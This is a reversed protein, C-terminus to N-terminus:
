DLGNRTLTFDGIEIRSSGDRLVQGPLSICFPHGRSNDRNKLKRHRREMARLQQFPRLHVALFM